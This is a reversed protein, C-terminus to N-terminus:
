TSVRKLLSFFSQISFRILVLDTAQKLICIGPHTSPYVLVAFPCRQVLYPYIGNHNARRQQFVNYFLQHRLTQEALYNVNRRLRVYRGFSPIYSFYIYKLDTRILTTNELGSALIIFHWWTPFLNFWNNKSHWM